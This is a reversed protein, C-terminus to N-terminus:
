SIRSRRDSNVRRNMNHYLIGEQDAAVASIPSIHKMYSTQTNNSVNEVVLLGGVGYILTNPVKPLNKLVRSHTGNYGCISNLQIAGTNKNM